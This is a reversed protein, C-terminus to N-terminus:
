WPYIYHDHFCPCKPTVRQANPVDPHYHAEKNGHSNKPHHKPPKGGGARRAAEKAAKKTKFRKRRAPPYNSRETSSSESDSQALSASSTISRVGVALVAVAVTGIGIAVWGAPTISALGAVISGFVKIGAGLSLGTGVAGGGAM